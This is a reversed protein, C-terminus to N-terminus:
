ETPASGGMMDSMDQVQDAPPAKISVDAGYDFVNMKMTGQADLDAEMQAIRGQEDLWIDYTLSEPLEVGEAGQLGSLMGTAADTSVTVTYHTTSVGDIDETGVTKVDELGETFAKTMSAMDFGGLGEMQEALEPNAKPDIKMYGSQGEIPMTMYMVGDVLIVEMEGGNPAGPVTMTLQTAPQDGTYDMVGEATTAVGGVTIEMTMKATTTEDVGDAVLKAFDDNGVQEASSNSTDAGDTSDGENTVEQSTEQKPKDSDSKKDDDNCAALGVLAVPVIVAAAFRRSINTRM